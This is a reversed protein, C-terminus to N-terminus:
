AEGWYITDDPSFQVRGTGGAHTAIRRLIKGTQLDWLIIQSDTGGSVLRKGDNSFMIGLAVESHGILQQVEEEWHCGLYRIM